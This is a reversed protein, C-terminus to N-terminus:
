TKFQGTQLARVTEAAGLWFPSMASYSAQKVPDAPKFEMFKAFPTIDVKESRPITPVSVDPCIHGATAMKALYERYAPIDKFQKSNGDFTRGVWLDEGIPYISQICSAFNQSM